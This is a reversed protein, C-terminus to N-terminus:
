QVSPQPDVRRGTTGPSGFILGYFFSPVCFGTAVQVGAMGFMVGGIVYGAASFGFYFAAAMISIMLSAMMCASRRPRGYRPIKPGGTVLRIGYNYIVDFPHVPLVAGLVAFPVLAILVAPSAMAVGVTTWVLCIAPALRFWYNLKEIEGDTLGLFGQAELRSRVKGRDSM